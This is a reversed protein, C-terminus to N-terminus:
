TRVMERAPTSGYGREVFKAAVAKADPDYLIVDHIRSWTSGDDALREILYASAVTTTAFRCKAGPLFWDVGLNQM